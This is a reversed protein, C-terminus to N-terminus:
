GIMMKSLQQIMDRNLRSLVKGTTNPVHHTYQLLVRDKELLGHLFATCRNTKARNSELLSVILKKHLTGYDYLARLHNICDLQICKMLCTPDRIRVPSKQLLSRFWPVNIENCDDVSFLLRELFTTRRDASRFMPFLLTVARWDKHAVISAVIDDETEWDTYQKAVTELLVDDDDDIDQPDYLARDRIVAHFIQKLHDKGLLAPGRLTLITDCFVHYQNQISRIIRDVLVNRDLSHVDFNKFVMKIVAKFLKAMNMDIADDEYQKQIIDYLIAIPFVINDGYTKYRPPPLKKLISQLFEIFTKNQGTEVPIKRLLSAMPYNGRNDPRYLHFGRELFKHVNALFAPTKRRNWHRVYYLFATEGKENVTFRALPDVNEDAVVRKTIDKM